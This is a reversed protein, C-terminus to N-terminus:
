LATGQPRPGWLQTRPLAYHHALNHVQLLPVGDNKHEFHGRASVAYDSAAIKEPTIVNM